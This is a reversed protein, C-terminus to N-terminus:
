IYQICTLLQTHQMRTLKFDTKGITIYWNLKLLHHRYM